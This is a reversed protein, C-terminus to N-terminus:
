ELKIIIEIQTLVRNCIIYIEIKRKQRNTNNQMQIVCIWRDWKLM